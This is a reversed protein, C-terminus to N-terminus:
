NIQPKITRKQLKNANTVRRTNEVFNLYAKVIPETSPNERIFQIASNDLHQQSLRQKTPVTRRTYIERGVKFNNGDDMTELFRQKHIKIAQCILKIQNQLMQKERCLIHFDMLNMESQYTISNHDMGRLIDDISRKPRKAVNSFPRGQKKRANKEM